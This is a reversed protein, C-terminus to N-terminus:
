REPTAQLDPLNYFIPKSPISADSDYGSDKLDSSSVLSHKSRSDKERQRSPDVCENSSCSDNDELLSRKRARSKAMSSILAATANASSPNIQDIGVHENGDSFSFVDDSDLFSSQSESLEGTNSMSCQQMLFDLDLQM